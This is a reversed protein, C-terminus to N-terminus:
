HVRTTMLAISCQMKWFHICKNLPCAVNRFITTKAVLLVPLIFLRHVNGFRRRSIVTNKFYQQRLKTKRYINYPTTCKETVYIALGRRSKLDSFVYVTLKGYVITTYYFRALNDM